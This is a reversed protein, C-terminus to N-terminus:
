KEWASCDRKFADIVPQCADLEGLAARAHIRDRRTGSEAVRKLGGQRLLVLRGALEICDLSDAACRAPDSTALGVCLDYLGASQQPCREPEQLSVASEIQTCITEAAGGDASLCDERLAPALLAPWNATDAARRAEHFFM